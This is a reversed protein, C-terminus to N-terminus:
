AASRTQHSFEWYLNRARQGMATGSFQKQEYRTVPTVKNANGTVFMEDAETLDGPTLSVERVDVGDDRLLGIVRQRTIGNLFTGNPAPTEVVGDRVIFLNTSGTEAVHGEQDLSIGNAFGRQRADRIVRANNAYHCSAKAENLAADPPPRRFPSLTLAVDGLGALPLAELCIALATEEPNPEILNALGERSWIMPRLYLATENEFRDVGELILEEIEGSELPAKMGMIEASRVVRGCHLDLDPVVGEFSRAGDFVMTGLWAGHDAAGLVPTNGENWRGDFWTACATGITM